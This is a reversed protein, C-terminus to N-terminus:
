KLVEYLSVATAAYVRKTNEPTYLPLIIEKGNFRQLGEFIDEQYLGPFVKGGFKLNMWDGNKNSVKFAGEFLGKYNGYLANRTVDGNQHKVTSRFNNILKLM